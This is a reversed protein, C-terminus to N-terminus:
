MQPPSSAGRNLIFSSLTPCSSPFRNPPPASIFYPLASSSATAWLRSVWFEPQLILDVSSGRISCSFQLYSWFIMLGIEWTGMGLSITYKFCSLCAAIQPPVLKRYMQYPSGIHNHKSHIQPTPPALPPPPHVIALIGFRIAHHVDAHWFLNKIGDTYGGLIAHCWLKLFNESHNSGNCIEASPWKKKNASEARWWHELTGINMKLVGAVKSPGGGWRHKKQYLSKPGFIPINQFTNGFKRYKLM